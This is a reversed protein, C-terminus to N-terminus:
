FQIRAGAQIFWIDSLGGPIQNAPGGSITADAQYQRYAVYLDMAAADVKQVVGAGWWVVSSDLVLSSTPNLFTGAPGVPGLAPFVVSALLGNTGNDFRGWEGYVTTDGWGTWNRQIGADAWWLPIDPRRGDVGQVNGFREFANEGRFEYQMFAGSVFLGTALHM